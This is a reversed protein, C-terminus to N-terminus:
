KSSNRLIFLLHNEIYNLCHQIGIFLEPQTLYLQIITIATKLADEPNKHNKIMEILMTENESM